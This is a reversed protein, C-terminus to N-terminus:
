IYKKKKSDSYFWEKSEKNEDKLNRIERRLKQIELEEKKRSLQEITKELEEDQEPSSFVRYFLYSFYNYSKVDCRFYLDARTIYCHFDSTDGELRLGWQFGIFLWKMIIRNTYANMNQSIFLYFNCCCDVKMLYFSVRNKLLLWKGM